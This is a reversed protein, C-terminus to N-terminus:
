IGLLTREEVTSTPSASLEVESGDGKAWPLALALIADLSGHASLFGASRRRVFDPNFGDDIKRKLAESPKPTHPYRFKYDSTSEDYVIPLRGGKGDVTAVHRFILLDPRAMVGGCHDCWADGYWDRCELGCGQCIM